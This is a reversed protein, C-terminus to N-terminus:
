PPPATGSIEPPTATGDFSPAPTQIPFRARMAEETAFFIQIQDGDQPIYEPPVRQENVMIYIQGPRGDGPVPDGDHVTMAFPAGPERMSTEILEGGGYEFWKSLAAGSGEEEHTFPHSHIIGDGHTHIGSGEWTPANPQKQDGIFISYSAHWHDLGILPHGDRPKYAAEALPDDSARPLTLSGRQRSASEDSSGGTSLVGVGLLAVGGLLIAAIGILAARAIPWRRSSAVSAVSTAEERSSVGLKSLIQSVHYKAGDLTIGLREAIEENTLGVRLLDFVERERPTLEDTVM